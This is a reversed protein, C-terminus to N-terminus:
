WPNRGTYDEIMSDMIVDDVSRDTQVNTSPIVGMTSPIQRARETQQFAPSPQAPQQMQQQTQPASQPQPQSQSADLTYIRWLNDVTLSNPNSMKTIFEDAQADSAGYQQMVQQKVSNLQERQQAEAQQVERVRQQQEAFQQREYAILERDYESRLHNYESMDDRWAESEELYRASESSPDSYAEERSYGRPQQPREPPPPFEQLAQEQAPAQTAQQQQTMQQNIQQQLMQNTQQLQNVENQRKDAQSQWYQYRAEDNTSPQAQSPEQEPVQPAPSIEDGSPPQQFADDQAPQAGFIIDDVVSDAPVPQAEPASFADGVEPQISQQTDTPPIQQEM